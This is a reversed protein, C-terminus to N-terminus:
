LDMKNFSVERSMNIGRRMRSSIRSENGEQCRKTHTDKNTAQGRGVWRWASPLHAATTKEAATDGAALIGLRASSLHM